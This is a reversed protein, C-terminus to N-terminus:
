YEDEDLRECALGYIRVGMSNEVCDIEVGMHSYEAHRNETTLLV